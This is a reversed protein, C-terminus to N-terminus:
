AEKIKEWIPDKLEYKHVIDAEIQKYHGHPIKKNEFDIVGIGGSKFSDKFHSLKKAQKDDIILKFQSDSWSKRKILKKILRDEIQINSNLFVKIENLSKM